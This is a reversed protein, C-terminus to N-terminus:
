PLAAQRARHEACDVRPVRAGLECRYQFFDLHRWRKEVTDHVPSSSGCVPCGFRSGRAFGLEQEVLGSDKSFGSREVRWPSGALQLAMAFLENTDM